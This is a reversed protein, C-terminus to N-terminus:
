LERILVEIGDLIRELGFVFENDPSDQQELVGASLVANLAPFRDPGALKGLTRGYDAMAEHETSGAAQSASDMEAALQGATRVFGNLLIMVSLKQAEPLGTGKLSSLAQEMWGVQNPLTPLGGARIRLVWPHRRLAAMHAWAWTSLNPRWGEEPDLEPPPGYAADTMLALLEDKARVYRYLAMPASGLQKAVRSMSVAEIGESSAVLVGADVIRQLSLGPRPGKPPRARVGWVAETSAPLGTGQAEDGM